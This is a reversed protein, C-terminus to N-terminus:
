RRMTVAYRRWPKPQRASCSTLSWRRINRMSVLSWHLCYIHGRFAQRQSRWLAWRLMPAPPLRVVHMPSCLRPAFSTIPWFRDQLRSAVKAEGRSVLQTGLATELAAVHKSVAPQSVYLAAAARSFSGERAVAAFARLRAELDM